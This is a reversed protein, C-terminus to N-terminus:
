RYARAQLDYLEAYLGGQQMLEAHSGAAVLRGRELVLILDAMRVTSFRHSVLVTVGGNHSAARGAARAYHEFLAHEAEPDLAATPEDLVLLVPHARMMARGLALKQWQGGSLEAGETYARGLQTGLGLDLREIVDTASARELAALVAAEDDIEALQGVGVSERAVFEFRAFDQFGGSATARWETPEIRALDVGDATIRGATPDYLRCLLKVLTTKGAGNEGVVAVVAGAPLQVTVDDLVAVETGPYTFSVHELNIGELLRQPAAAPDDVPARRSTAYDTLWVLRGAVRLSRVLFATIGAANAAQGNVQGALAFALAVDGPTGGGELTRVAVLAIAGAFGLGFAAWGLSELLAMRRETRSTERIVGRWESAYRETFEDGLDFVRLEKGPGATTGANFLHNLRRFPEALREAQEIQLKTTRAATFLSPVAFLPLLLLAPHLSALLGLTFIARFVVGLFGVLAQLVQSLAAREQRLLEIENAYEPHEHHELTPVSAALTMIRADLLLDSREQLTALFRFGLNNAARSVASLGAIVVAGTAAGRNSGSTAADVLMKVGYSQAVYGFSNLLTLVVQAIAGAPHAEFVLGVMMRLAPWFREQKM